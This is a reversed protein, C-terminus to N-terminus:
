FALSLKTSIKRADFVKGMELGFKFILLNLNFGAFFQSGTVDSEAFQNNTFDFFENSGSISMKGSAKVTGLGAYPEFIGLKTSGLLQLGNITNEIEVDAPTGSVDQVFGLTSTTHHLKLALDFPLTVVSDTMTWQVAMGVNKITVDGFDKEPLAELEFKFGGPLSVAALLGAHPLAATEATPDSEAVLDEVGPVQAVGAVIGVEFGFIKGLSSAPSVSTHTYLGGLDQIITDFDDQSLSVFSPGGAHAISLNFTLGCIIVAMKVLYKM